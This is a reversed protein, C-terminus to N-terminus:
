DCPPQSPQSSTNDVVCRGVTSVVGSVISPLLINLFDAKNELIKKKKTKLSTKEAMALMVGKHKKLKKYQGPALQVDSRLVAGCLDGLYKIFCNSSSNIEDSQAQKNKKLKILKQLQPLFNVSRFKSGKKCPCNKKHRGM